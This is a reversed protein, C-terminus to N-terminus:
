RTGLTIDRLWSVSAKFKRTGRYIILSYHKQIPTIGVTLVARIKSSRISESAYTREVDDILHLFASDATLVLQLISEM